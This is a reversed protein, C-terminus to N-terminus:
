GFSFYEELFNEFFSDVGLSVYNNVINLGKCVIESVIFVARLDKGRLGRRLCSVDKMRFSLFFFGVFFYNRGSTIYDYFRRGM